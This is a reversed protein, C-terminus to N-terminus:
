YIVFVVSTGYNNPVAQGQTAGSTNVFNASEETYVNPSRLWWNRATQTNTLDYKIRDTATADSYYPFATGEAISDNNGFGMETLSALFAKASITDSGGSDFEFSLATVVDVAGLADIFQSDMGNLLGAQNAYAPPLDFANKKVWWQNAAVTSEVWQRIASNSYRNCGYASRKTSNFSGVTDVIYQKYRSATGLVTGSSGTTVTLGSEIAIRNEDYTTITGGTINEPKYDSNSERWAGILDHRWAGGVPIPKTTTFHYTGDEGTGGNNAAHDLMFTYTGAPLAASTTNGWTAEEADYPTGYIVGHMMLTMTPKSADGTAKNINHGVVDLSISGYKSSNVTLKSGVPFMKPGYNSRVMQVISNWDPTNGTVISLIMDVEAQLADITLAKGVAENVQDGTYSLKYDAM